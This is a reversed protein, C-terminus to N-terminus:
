TNGESQSVGLIHKQVHEKKDLLRFNHGQGSTFSHNKNRLQKEAKQSSEPLIQRQRM